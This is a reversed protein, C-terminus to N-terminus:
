PETVGCSVWAGGTLTARHTPATARRFPDGGGDPDLVPSKRVCWGTALGAPCQRCGVVSFMTPGQPERPLGAVLCRSVGSCGISNTLGM